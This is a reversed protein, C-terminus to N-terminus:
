RLIFRVDLKFPHILHFEGKSYEVLIKNTRAEEVELTNYLETHKRKGEDLPYVPYM